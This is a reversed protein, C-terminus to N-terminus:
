HRCTPHSKLDAGIARVSRAPPENEGHKGNADCPKRDKVIESLIERNNKADLWTASFAVPERNKNSHKKNAIEMAKEEPTSYFSSIKFKLQEKYAKSIPTGTRSGGQELYRIFANLADQWTIKIPNM